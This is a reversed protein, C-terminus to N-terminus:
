RRTAFFAALGLLVAGVMLVMALGIFLLTNNVPEAPSLDPVGSFLRTRQPEVESGAPLAVSTPNSNEALRTEQAPTPSPLSEFTPPVNLTESAPPAPTQTRPPATHAPTPSLATPTATETPTVTSTPTATDPILTPTATAANGAGSRSLILSPPPKPLQLDSIKFQKTATGEDGMATIFVRDANPDFIYKTANNQSRAAELNINFFDGGDALVILASLFSSRGDTGKDDGDRLQAFVLAGDAGSGDPNKIHGSIYFPIGSQQAPGMHVSWHAGGNTYTEAGSIVDFEYDTRGKLKKVQVYHTKGRYDKGRVDDFSGVGLVNVQGQVAEPTRWSVVFHNEDSEGNFSIIINSICVTATPDASVPANLCANFQLAPSARAASLCLFAAAVVLLITLAARWLKVVPYM